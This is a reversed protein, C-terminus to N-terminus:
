KKEEFNLSVSKVLRPSFVTDCYDCVVIFGPVKVEKLSLWHEAKCDTDPCIYLLTADITRPEVDNIKTKTTM